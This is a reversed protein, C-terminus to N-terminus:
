PQFDTILDVKAVSKLAQASEQSTVGHAALLPELDEYLDRQGNAFDPFNLFYTPVDHQVLTQILKYFQVALREEQKAPRRQAQFALGGRTAQPDLGAAEATQSVRRRSEAAAFLDRMPVICAAVKLEGGELAKGLSGTYFPSKAVYPFPERGLPTELGAHSIDDVRRWVQDMTFGTDFGLATFYQVLLTTGARGTGTILIHGNSPGSRSLLEDSRSEDM